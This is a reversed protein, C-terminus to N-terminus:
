KGERLIKGLYLFGAFMLLGSPTGMLVAGATMATVMTAENWDIESFKRLRLKM